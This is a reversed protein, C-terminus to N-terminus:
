AREPQTQQATPPARVMVTSEMGRALKVLGEMRVLHDPLAPNTKVPLRTTSIAPHHRSAAAQELKATDAKHQTLVFHATMLPVLQSRTLQAIKRELEM